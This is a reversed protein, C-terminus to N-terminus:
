NLIRGAFWDAVRRSLTWSLGLRKAPECYGRYVTLMAPLKDYDSSDDDHLIVSNVDRGFEKMMKARYQEFAKIYHLIDDPTTWKIMTHEEALSRGYEYLQQMYAIKNM